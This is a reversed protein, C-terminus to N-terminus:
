AAKDREEAAQTEAQRMMGIEEPTRPPFLYDAPKGLYEAIRHETKVSLDRGCIVQSIYPRPLYLSKALDSITMEKEALAVMVTRRRERDLPYPRSGLGSFEHLFTM